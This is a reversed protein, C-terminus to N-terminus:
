HFNNTYLVHNITPKITQGYDYLGIYHGMSLAGSLYMM